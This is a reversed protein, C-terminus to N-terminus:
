RGPHSQVAQIWRSLLSDLHAPHDATLTRCSGNDANPPFRPKGGLGRLPVTSEKTKSPLTVEQWTRRSSCYKAQNQLSSTNVEVRTKTMTEERQLEVPHNCHACNAKPQQLGLRSLRRHHSYERWAYDPAEQNGTHALILLCDHSSCLM